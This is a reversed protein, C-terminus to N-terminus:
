FRRVFSRHFSWFSNMFRFPQWNLFYTCNSYSVCVTFSLLGVHLQHLSGKPLSSCFSCNWNRAGNFQCFSNACMWTIPLPGKYDRVILLLIIIVIFYKHLFLRSIGHAFAFMCDWLCCKKKNTRIQIKQKMENVINNQKKRRELVAIQQEKQAAKTQWISICFSIPMPTGSRCCWWPLSSKNSRSQILTYIIMAKHFTNWKSNLDFWIIEAQCNSQKLLYSIPSVHADVM